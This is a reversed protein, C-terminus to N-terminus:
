LVFALAFTVTSYLYRGCTLSSTGSILEITNSTAPPSGTTYKRRRRETRLYTNALSCPTHDSVGGQEGDIKLTDEEEPPSSKKQAEQSDTPKKRNTLYVKRYLLLGYAWAAAVTVRVRSSTDWDRYHPRRTTPRPHSLGPVGCSRRCRHAG